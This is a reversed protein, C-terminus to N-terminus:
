KIWEEKIKTYTPNEIPSGTMSTTSAIRKKFRRMHLVRRMRDGEGKLELYWTDKFIAPLTEKTSGLVLPTISDLKGTSDLNYSEHALVVINKTCSRMSNFLTNYKLKVEGYIQLTNAKYDKLVEPNFGQAQVMAPFMVSDLSTLSDLVITNWREDRKDKKWNNWVNTWVKLSEGIDSVSFSKMYIDKEGLLPEYKGDFDYVLMPKPFDRVLTTKGAGAAGYIVVRLPQEERKEKGLDKIDM